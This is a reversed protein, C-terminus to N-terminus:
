EDLVALSRVGWARANADSIPLRGLEDWPAPGRLIAGDNTGAYLSDASDAWSIVCSEPQGPYTVRELTGDTDVFMAAEPPTWAPADRNGATYMRGFYCSERVYEYPGVDREQWTTGADTTEFVGGRRAPGGIGCSVLWRDPTVPLVDHVDDPVPDFQKWSVGADDSAVFGGVEVGAYIYGDSCFVSHVDATPVGLRDWSQGLDDTEFVGSGTAAFLTGDRSHLARVSVGDFVLQAQEFPQERIRYVGGPTGAFLM